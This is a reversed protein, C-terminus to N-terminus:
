SRVRIVAGLLILRAGALIMSKLSCTLSSSGSVEPPPQTSPTSPTSGPSSGPTNGTTEVHIMVTQTSTWSPNISDTATFNGIFTEGSQSRNPTFSFSGTTPDFAMNSALGTASLTVTGGSGTPDS